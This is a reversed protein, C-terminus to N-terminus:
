NDSDFTLSTVNHIVYSVSHVCKWISLYSVYDEHHCISMHKELLCMYVSVYVGMLLLESKWRRMKKKRKGEEELIIHKGKIFHM